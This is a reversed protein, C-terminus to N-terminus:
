QFDDGDSLGYFRLSTRFQPLLHLLLGFVAGALACRRINWPPKMPSAEEDASLAILLHRERNTPLNKM